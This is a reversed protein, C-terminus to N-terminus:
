PRESVTDKLCSMTTSFDNGKFSHEISEVLYKGKYFSDVTENKTSALQFAPIELNVVSGAHLRSDGPIEVTVKIQDIQLLQSLRNQVTAERKKSFVKTHQGKEIVYGSKAMATPTILFKRCATESLLDTNAPVIGNTAFSGPELHVQAGFATPYAYLTKEYRRTTLDLSYLTSGLLGNRLSGVSDFTKTFHLQDIGVDKKGDNSTGDDTLLKNVRSYTDIIKSTYLQQLTKFKFGEQTEFFFYASGDTKDHIAFSSLWSITSFPDLYPVILKQTNVTSDIDLKKESKLFLFVDKIISSITLGQYAKSIKVKENEIFEQSVFLLRYTCATYGKEMKDKMQYVRYSKTIEPYEDHDKATTYSITIKEHGQIPFTMHIGETDSVTIEGTICPSFVSERIILQDILNRIAISKKGDLSELKIDSIFYDGPRNYGSSSTM